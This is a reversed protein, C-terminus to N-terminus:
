RSLFFASALRQRTRRQMGLSWPQKDSGNRPQPYVFAERCNPTGCPLVIGVFTSAFAALLPPFSPCRARNAWVKFPNLFHGEHFHENDPHGYCQGCRDHDVHRPM